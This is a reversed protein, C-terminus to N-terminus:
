GTMTLMMLAARAERRCSQLAFSRRIITGPREGSIGRCKRTISSSSSISNSISDRSVAKAATRRPNAEEKAKQKQPKGKGKGVSKGGAPKGGGEEAM